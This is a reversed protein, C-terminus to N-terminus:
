LDNEAEVRIRRIEPWPALTDATVGGSLTGGARHAHV